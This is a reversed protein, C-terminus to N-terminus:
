PREGKTQARLTDLSWPTEDLTMLRDAAAAVARGAAQAVARAAEAEAADVTVGHTERLLARATEDSM